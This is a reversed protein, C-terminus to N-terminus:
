LRYFGLIYELRFLYLIERSLKKQYYSPQHFVSTSIIIAYYMIRTLDNFIIQKNIYFQQIISTFKLNCNNLFFGRLKLVRICLIRNHLSVYQKVMLWYGANRNLKLLEYNNLYSESIAPFINQIKFRNL